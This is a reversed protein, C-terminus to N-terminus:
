RQKPPTLKSKRNSGQTGATYIIMTAPDKIGMQRLAIKAINDDLGLDQAADAALAWANEYMDVPDEPDEVVDGLFKEVHQIIKNVRSQQTPTLSEQCKSKDNKQKAETKAKERSMFDSCRKMTGHHSPEYVAWNGDSDQMAEYKDDKEMIRKLLKRAVSEVKSISRAPRRKAASLDFETSCKNCQCQGNGIYSFDSTGCRPCQYGGRLDWERILKRSMLRVVM